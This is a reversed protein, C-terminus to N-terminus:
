NLEAFQIKSYSYFTIPKLSEDVWSIAAYFVRRTQQLLGNQFPEFTEPFQRFRRWKMLLHRIYLDDSSKITVMSIAALMSCHALGNTIRM